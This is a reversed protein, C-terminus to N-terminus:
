RGGVKDDEEPRDVEENNLMAAKRRELSKFKDQRSACDVIWLIRGDLLCKGITSM